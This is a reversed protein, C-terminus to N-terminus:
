CDVLRRDCKLHTHPVVEFVDFKIHNLITCINMQPVWPIMVADVFARWKVRDQSM